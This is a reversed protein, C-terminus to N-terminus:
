LNYDDGDYDSYDDSDIEHDDEEISLLIIFYDKLRMHQKRVGLLKNNCKFVTCDDDTYRIGKKIMDACPHSNYLMIKNIVHEPLKDFYNM